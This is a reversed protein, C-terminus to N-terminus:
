YCMFDFRSVLLYIRSYTWKTESILDILQHLLFGVLGVAFGILGMM